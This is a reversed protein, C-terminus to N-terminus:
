LHVLVTSDMKNKIAKKRGSKSLVYNKPIGKAGPLAYDPRVIHDPVPRLM